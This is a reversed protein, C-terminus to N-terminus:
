CSDPLLPSPLPDVTGPGVSTRRQGDGNANRKLSDDGRTNLLHQNEGPHRSGVAADGAGAKTVGLAEEGCFGTSLIMSGTTCALRPNGQHGATSKPNGKWAFHGLNRRVLSGSQCGNCLVSVLEPQKPQWSAAWGGVELRSSRGYPHPAKFAPQRRMQRKVITGGTTLPIRSSSVSAISRTTKGGGALKDSVFWIPPRALGLSGVLM